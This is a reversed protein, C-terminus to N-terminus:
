FTNNTTAFKRLKRNNAYINTHMTKVSRIVRIQQFNIYMYTIHHHMDSIIMNKLISNTTAFKHLKRNNQCLLCRAIWLCTQSSRGNNLNLRKMKCVLKIIINHVFNDPNRQHM